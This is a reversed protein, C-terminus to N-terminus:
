EDKLLENLRKALAGLAERRSTYCINIPVQKNNNNSIYISDVCINGLSGYRISWKENKVESM